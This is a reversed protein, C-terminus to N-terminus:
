RRRLFILVEDRTSYRVSVYGLFELTMLIKALDMESVRIRRSELDSLLEVDMVPAQGDKTLRKISEYVINILPTGMWTKM